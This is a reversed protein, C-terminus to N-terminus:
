PPTKKEEFKVRKKTTSVAFNMGCEKWTTNMLATEIYQKIYGESIGLLKEGFHQPYMESAKINKYTNAKLIINTSLSPTSSIKEAGRM